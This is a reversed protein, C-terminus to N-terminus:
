GSRGSRQPPRGRISRLVRRIVLEDAPPTLRANRFVVAAHTVRGPRQFAAVTIRQPRRKSARLTGAGEVRASRYPSGRVRRRGPLASGEFGPLEELTERAYMAPHKQRGAGSRDAAVTVVVLRDRSRILTAGRKTRATWRRPAAVTFGARRNRITRWGKPAKAPRDAREREPGGGGEDGCSVVVAAGALGLAALRM